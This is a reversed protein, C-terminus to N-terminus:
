NAAMKPVTKLNQWDKSYFRSNIQYHPTKQKTTLFPDVAQDVALWGRWGLHITDQMFYPVNGKDSLDCINTFGQSTLQYRIKQDFEKLMKPSLGTYESWKQNVPPIVFEVNTHLSAFQNLVLEFDSFEPSQTYNWNREFNKFKNKKKELRRQYFHNDIGFKNNTTHLKGQEVALKDLTKIQYNAPLQKAFHDIRKQNNKLKLSSFLQDEHQLLRKEYTLYTRQGTTISKGAAIRKLASAIVHNAKGSPMELLRKAAYRDMKQDERQNLLWVISQLPSYYFSFADKRAGKHVFWQPSIVFVAKRNKLQPDVLQMQFYHTLSQTGPAGMLFPTYPRKYKTALVSPHSFSFRSFESSGFFPVFKKHSLASEKIVQGKLVNPSLSVAAQRETKSNIHSLKFPSFLIALLLVGALVVPGFILFLKKAM